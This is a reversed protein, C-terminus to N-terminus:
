CLKNVVSRIISQFLQKESLNLALKYGIFAVSLISSLLVCFFRLTNYKIVCHLFIVPISALTVAILIPFVVKVAYDKLPFITIKSLIWCGVIHAIIDVIFVISLAIEPIKFFIIAFYATPVSCFKIISTYLQFSKMKGTAHVLNSIASHLNTTFATALVIIVFSDSHEPISEGLWVNLVFSIELCIPLALMFFFLCSLKCVSYTLNLSRRLDGKAFSQVVQPRVPTTINSVFSRIGGNVQAAVGRAANVVPGFFLNLVLNIGQEKMMISFSGFVNWSSFGLLSKFLSKDFIFNFRIESFHKKCYSYYLIFNIISIISLLAGYLILGDVEFLPILFVIGLKIVADLVSIVAYFDMKEHAMVAATYPAQLIIFLFSILSLQFIWQAAILRNDPIVMKEYMYWLGFSEAGIIIIIGLIVQIVLAANYVRIAGKEGNKGYEYNFFRQIGNSLSTNLFAFMSVFGCVVNYIGYDEVGLVKLVARTTYLTICLVIVM